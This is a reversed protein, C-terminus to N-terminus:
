SNKRIINLTDGEVRTVFDHEEAFKVGNDLLYERVMDYYGDIEISDTITQLAERVSTLMVNGIPVAEENHEELM